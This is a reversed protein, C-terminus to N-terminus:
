HTIGWFLYIMMMGPTVQVSVNKSDYIGVPPISIECTYQGQHSVKLPSFQLSYDVRQSTDERTITHESCSALNKGHLDRWIVVTDGTHDM